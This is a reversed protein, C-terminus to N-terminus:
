AITVEAERMVEMRHTVWSTGAALHYRGTLVSARTPACVPSVYFRTFETSHQALWDLHPTSVIDNGHFALDGWGQDDTLVLLINPRKPAPEECGSFGAVIFLFLLSALLNKM